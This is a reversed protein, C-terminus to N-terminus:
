AAGKSPPWRADPRDGDSGALQVNRTGHTARPSAATVRQARESGRARTVHADFDAELPAGVALIVGDIALVRHPAEALAIRRREHEVAVVQEGRARHLVDREVM